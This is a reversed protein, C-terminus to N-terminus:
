DRDLEAVMDSWSEQDPSQPGRKALLMEKLQRALILDPHADISEDLKELAEVERGLKSLCYAQNYRALALFSWRATSGMLWGRRVDLWQRRTWTAESAQFSQLADTFDGRRSQRIGRRRNHSLIRRVIVTRGAACVLAGRIVGEVGGVRCVIVSLLGCGSIV